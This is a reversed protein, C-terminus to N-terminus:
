RLLLCSDAGQSLLARVVNGARILVLRQERKVIDMAARLYLDWTNGPLMPLSSTTDADFLLVCTYADADGFPNELYAARYKNITRLGEGTVIEPTQDTINSFKKRFIPTTSFSRSRLVPLSTLGALRTRMKLALM